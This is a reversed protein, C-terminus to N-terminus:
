CNQVQSPNKASIASPKLGNVIKLFFSVKFTQCPEPYAEPKEESTLERIM